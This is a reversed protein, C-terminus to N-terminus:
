FRYIKFPGRILRIWKKIYECSNKKKTKNNESDKQATKKKLKKKTETALSWRKHQKKKTYFSVVDLM